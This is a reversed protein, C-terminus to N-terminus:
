ERAAAPRRRSGYPRSGSATSGACSEAQEFARRTALPSLVSALDWVTRTATTTRIGRHIGVDREDLNRVRHVVVGGPDAGARRPVVVHVALRQHPSVIGRSQGASGFGLASGPPCALVAAMWRAERTIRRHGVAYVGRHLRHLHGARAWHAITAAPVGEEVLQQRSVVGHQRWAIEAILAPLPRPQDLM